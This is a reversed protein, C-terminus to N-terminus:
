FRRLRTTGLLDSGYDYIIVKVSTPTITVPVNVTLKLGNKRIDDYNEPRVTVNLTRWVEGVGAGYTDMCLVAQSIAALSGDATRAFVLREVPIFTDVTVSRVAGARVDSVKISLKLDNIDSPYNAASVMRTMAISRRPDFSEVPRAFYGHRYAVKLDKRVVEIKIKRFKGDLEANAPSYGLVYGFGTSHVLRDIATTGHESISAQGGSAESVSRLASLAFGNPVVPMGGVMQVAVGGTQFTDIAVRADAALSAVDRDYDASPMLFGQETVLLLHKEGEIFRLYDIGAYVNGVDQLTQRNLAV